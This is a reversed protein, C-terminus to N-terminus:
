LVKWRTLFSVTLGNFHSNRRRQQSDNRMVLDQMAKLAASWM